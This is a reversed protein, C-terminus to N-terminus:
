DLGACPQPHCFLSIRAGQGDADGIRMAYGHLRVIASVISLGLGSGPTTRSNDGRYFRRTVAEREDVPIGPGSDIVDIRPGHGDPAARLRIRGGPPSFKIANGVLNALAEFLLHADARVPALPQVELEFRQGRNEALPAYFAHVQRLVDALDIEDFCACRRDELESIRLLARFRALVADIDGICADLLEAQPQQAVQQQARYLRARLHTLPTRLDHAINDCVGKVEAMLREIEDLMANIVGSLRDLEDDRKSIPLRRSLDGRRIPETAQALARIRRSYGRRLWWGGLLGPVLTLTAGWLLTRRVIAGLGEITSSEKVVLLTRGDGLRRALARVHVSDTRAAKWVGDPLLHGRGDVPLDAPLHQINGALRTGDAAFLGVPMSGRTDVADAVDVMEALRSQEMTAIFQVRQSLMQDIVGNLYRTAEWQVAGVLLLAWGAFLAGYILLLRTTASRGVRPLAALLASVTAMPAHRQVPLDLAPQSM